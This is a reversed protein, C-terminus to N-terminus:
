KQELEPHESPYYVALGELIKEIQRSLETEVQGETTTRLSSIILADAGLDAARRKARDVLEQDDM